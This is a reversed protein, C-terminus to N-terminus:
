SVSQFLALIFLVRMPKNYREVNTKSFLLTRKLRKGFSHKLRASDPYLLRSVPIASNITFMILAATGNRSVTTNM